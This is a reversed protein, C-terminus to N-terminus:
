EGQFVQIYEAPFILQVQDTAPTYGPLLFTFATGDIEVAVLYGDEQFWHDCVRASFCNVEDGERALRASRLLLTVEEGQSLGETTQIFFTGIATEVAAPATHIVKGLITNKLGLFRAVELNVPHLYLGEPSAQQIIKGESLLLVRDAIMYAEQQDHTVYITPIGTELLIQRIETLLQQRLSRDLAALPEDLMLLRPHTALTRALAVRQQEGGSLDAIDRSAFRLMGVRRLADEAEQRAQMGPIHQMKLGFRVNEFVNLHPLLAYDQFMLGFHRKHTPIDLISQGDWRIDGQDPQEIGAIIRLLTSKGSGSVGLLCLSEGSNVQFSLHQLLPKGEYEKGLNDVELM